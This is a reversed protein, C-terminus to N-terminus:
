IRMMAGKSESAAVYAIDSAPAEAAQAVPEYRGGTSPVNPVYHMGGPMGAMAIPQGRIHTHQTADHSGAESVGRDLLVGGRRIVDKDMSPSATRVAHGHRAAAPGRVEIRVQETIMGDSVTEGIRRMIGELIERMESFRHTRYANLYLAWLLALTFFVVAAAGGGNMYTEAKSNPLTSNGGDGVPGQSTPSSPPARAALVPPPRADYTVEVTIAEVSQVQVGLQASAFGTDSQMPSLVGLVRDKAVAEDVRIRAVARVSAATVEVEISDFNAGLLRALVLRYANVNFEAVTGSAVISFVVVFGAANAGQPLPPPSPPVAPPPPPPMSKMFLFCLAGSAPLTPTDHRAGVVLDETFDERNLAGVSSVARGFQSLTSVNSGMTSTATLEVTSSLNSGQEQLFHVVLSGRSQPLASPAGVILEPAGNHDYDAAFALAEGYRATPLLFSPATISAHSTVAYRAGTRQLSLLAVRGGATGAGATGPAGVAVVLTSSALRSAAPTVAVAAGFRANIELAPGLAGWSSPSIEYSDTALGQRSLYLMFIAGMKSGSSLRGPAGIILDPTGDGNLDGPAALSAGFEDHTASVSLKSHTRVQLASPPITETARTFLVYVAGARAGRESDGKAGVALEPFGDGDLDGIRTVSCGFYDFASLSSGLAGTSPAMNSAAKIAGGTSLTLVFLAGGSLRNGVRANQAGVAIDTVLDGDVDGLACVSSAFGDYQTLLPALAPDSPGAMAVSEVTGDGFARPLPPASPPQMRPPALPSPSMPPPQQLYFCAGSEFQAVQDYNLALSDTCGIYICLEAPLGLVALPDYNDARSDTCGKRGDPQKCTGDNATAQPSYNVAGSDPCGPIYCTGDDLDAQPNFNNATSLVCGRAPFECSADDANASADFNIALSHTCGRWVCLENGGTNASSMYNESSSDRCGSVPVACSNDEDTASADYGTRSSDTCGMIVCSGDDRLAAADFNEARRNTCGFTLPCSGDNRSAKSDYLVSESTTCGLFICSGDDVQAVANFNSADSSTCGSISSTCSGDDFTAQADFQPSDSRTCGEYVCAGAVGVAGSDYNSALSDDCGVRYTCSGDDVAANAAFNTAAPNTCGSFRCTGDDVQAESAFNSATSHTCGSAMVPFCGGDVTASPNYSPHGPVRCGPIACSGDDSVADARYNNANSDTCGVVTFTCSGSLTALPDYNSAGSLTCGQRACSGDDVTAVSNYNPASVQMCGLVSYVCQASDTVTALSDFTQSQPDTCGARAAICTDDWTALPDYNAATSDRCGARRFICSGDYVTANENFNIAILPATGRVTCGAIAAKCSGDDVTASPSYNVALSDARCGPTEYTCASASNASSVYNTASPDRCGTIIPSCSGDDVQAHSAFNPAMSDTCGRSLFTCASTPSSDETALSDFNDASQVRCGVKPLNCEGDVTAQSDFNVALSNKCGIVVCSGDNVAATSDYNTARNLTCGCVVPSPSLSSLSSLGGNCSALRRRGVDNSKRIRLGKADLGSLQTSKSRGSADTAHHCSGDDFVANADFNLAEPNTCGGRRYVPKSLVCSGDEVSASPNFNSANANMCGPIVCSGDDEHAHMDFNPANVDTCGRRRLSMCGIGDREDGTKRVGSANSCISAFRCSGDDQTAMPNWNLAVSKTCGSIVYQCRMASSRTSGRALPEFNVARADACGERSAVCSGDDVQATSDFNVAWRKTCGLASLKGCLHAAHVTANPDFGVAGPATCGLRMPVCSRDDVMALKNFNLATPDTCGQKPKERSPEALPHTLTERAQERRRRLDAREASSRPPFACSGDDVTAQSDYNKAESLVCGPRSRHIRREGFDCTGVEHVTAEVDYNIATPAMCGRRQQMKCARPVRYRAAPGFDLATSDSCAVEHTVPYICARSDVMATSDYNSAQPSTCGSAPAVCPGRITSSAAHQVVYNTADRQACGNPHQTTVAACSVAVLLFDLM